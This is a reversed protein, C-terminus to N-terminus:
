KRFYGNLISLAIGKSIQGGFSQSAPDPRTDSINSVFVFHEPGHDIFGVYWGDRLKGANNGDDSRGHWGSGTKAYYDAGNDLKGRSLHRKTFDVATRKVPLQSSVMKKLFELQEVASIKLSSSLWAHTLGNHKGPDGSFDRNGYSFAALYRDIKERGIRPTLQQSVWVVSYKQWSAPTQDRNWEPFDQNVTGDWTFVTNETILGQDFAIVALPIKFTSNVPIRQSCRSEPNYELAMKGTSQNYLMFCGDYGTFLKALAKQDLDGAHATGAWMVVISVIARVRIGITATM